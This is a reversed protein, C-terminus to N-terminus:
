WEWYEAIDSNVIAMLRKRPDNDLHVGYYGPVVNVSPHPGSAIQDGFFQSAM